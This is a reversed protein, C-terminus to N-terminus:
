LDVHYKKLIDIGQYFSKFQLIDEPEMMIDFTEELKTVLAIHGVSDWDSIEGRVVKGKDFDEDLGFLEQFIKWYNDMM